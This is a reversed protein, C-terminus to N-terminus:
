KPWAEHAVLDLSAAQDEPLEAMAIEIANSAARIKDIMAFRAAGEPSEERTDNIQRWIPSVANIRRAAEAKVELVLAARRDPWQLVPQGDEVGVIRAGQEIAVFLGVIADEAIAVGDEPPRPNAIETEYLASDAPSFVLTM